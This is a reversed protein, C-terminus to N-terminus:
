TPMENPDKGPAPWGGSYLKDWEGYGFGLLQVYHELVKGLAICSGDRHLPHEIKITTFTRTTIDRFTGAFGVYGHKALVLAMENILATEKDTLM